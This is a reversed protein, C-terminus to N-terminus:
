YLLKDIPIDWPDIPLSEVLRFPYCVGVTPCNLLPLLRDYYGGGRGLRFYKKGESVNEAPCFAVGPIIALDIDEVAVLEAEESPEMIGQFGLEIKDPDYEMLAMGISEASQIPAAKDAPATLVKPLVVRKGMAYCAKVFDATQVEGPLAMYALITGAKKFEELSALEAMIRSSEEKAFDVNAASALCGSLFEKQLTRMLARVEKKTSIM